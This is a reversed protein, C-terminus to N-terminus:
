NCGNLNLGVIIIDTKKLRSKASEYFELTDQIQGM